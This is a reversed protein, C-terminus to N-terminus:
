RQQDMQEQKAKGEEREGVRGEQREGGGGRVKWEERGGARAKGRRGREREGKGKGTVAREDVGGGEESRWLGRKDRGKRQRDGWEEENVRGRFLIYQV